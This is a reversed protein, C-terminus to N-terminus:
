SAGGKYDVIAVVRGLAAWEPEDKCFFSENDVTRIIWAMVSAGKECRGGPM